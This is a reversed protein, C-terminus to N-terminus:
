YSRLNICNYINTIQNAYGQIGGACGNEMNSKIVATETNVCSVLFLSTSNIYGVIGGARTGGYISSFNYNNRIIGKGDCIGIIGGGSNEDAHIDGFNHCDSIIGRSGAKHGIIGGATILSNVNAYNTCNTIEPLDNEEFQGCIASGIIGGAINTSNINGTVKVNKITCSTVRGFLGAYM